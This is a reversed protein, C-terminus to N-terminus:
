PRPSKKGKDTSRPRKGGEELGHTLYGDEDKKKELGSPLEGEGKNEMYRELGFPLGGADRGHNGKTERNQKGKGKANGKGQPYAPSSVLSMACAIAVVSLTRRFHTM